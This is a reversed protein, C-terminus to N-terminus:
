QNLELLVTKITAGKVCVAIRLEDKCVSEERTSHKSLFAIVNAANMVGEQIKRRWSTTLPKIERTDIWVEHGRKELDNKLREVITGNKDHGYSFFLKLKKDM